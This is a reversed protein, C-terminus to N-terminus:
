KYRIRFTVQDKGTEKVRAQAEEITYILKRHELWQKKIFEPDYVFSETEVDERDTTARMNMCFEAASQNDDYDECFM